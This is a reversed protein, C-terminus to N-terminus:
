IRKGENGKMERSIHEEIINVCLQNFTINKEHAMKALVLFEKDSLDITVEEYETKKTQLRKLEQQCEYSNCYPTRISPNCFCM